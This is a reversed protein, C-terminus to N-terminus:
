SVDVLEGRVIMRQSYDPLTCTQLTVINKGPVPEVVHVDTPGVVMEEYVEYTYRRGEADTLIIQDGKELKDLDYFALFSNTNPYGLRHGAIYVNAEEEWPWGTGKLHIAHYDRLAQEDNGAADPVTVGNIRDMKPVTLKLTTDEPANAAQQPQEEEAVTPVNFGAGPDEGTGNSAVNQQGFFFMVVLAVGAGVLILSAISLIVSKFRM